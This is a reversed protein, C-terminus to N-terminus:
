FDLICLLFLERVLIHTTAQNQTAHNITALKVATKKEDNTTQKYGLKM